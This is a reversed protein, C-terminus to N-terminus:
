GIASQRQRRRPRLRRDVGRGPGQRWGGRNRLSTSHWSSPRFSWITPSTSCRASAATAASCRRRGRTPSSTSGSPSYTAALAGVVFVPINQAVLFFTLLHRDVPRGRKWGSHVGLPLAVLVSTVSATVILLLSWGVRDGLEAAVPTTSFTSVGLDGRVLKTLYSGYQELIPGDLNYYETLKARTADDNVYNPDGSAMLSDIASGPM